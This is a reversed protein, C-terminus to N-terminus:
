LTCSGFYNCHYQYRTFQPFQPPLLAWLYQLPDQVIGLDDYIGLFNAIAFLVHVADYIVCLLLM